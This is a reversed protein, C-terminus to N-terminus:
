LLELGASFGPWIRVETAAGENSLRASGYLAPDTLVNESDAISVSIAPGAFVAVGRTVRWGVPLRLQAISTWDYSDHVEDHALLGHEIADLDLFWDAQDALRVGIGLATAFVVGLGDRHTVGVGYINHVHKGGHKIGVMALGADGSWVDPQTRGHWLLSVLGIAADADEAVNLLGIMTGEVREAAVNVLGLQVGDVDEGAVNLLGIQAGSTKQIAIDVLGFQLGEFRAGALNFLGWQAGVLADTAVNALAVQAGRVQGDAIDVLGLQLGKVLVTGTNILGVQVGQVPGTVLNLGGSLQAGCLARTELNFVGGLEFGRVSGSFGGLLNFSVAREVEAGDLASTGLYPVFDAGLWRRKGSWPDCGTPLPLAAAVDPPRLQALLEAAEDRLLNTAVLAITEAAHARTSSVDIVRELTPRDDRSLAIRVLDASRADVTLRARSSDDVLLVAMGLEGAIATRLTEPDIETPQLRVWLRLPKRTSTPADTPADTPDDARAAAVVASCAFLAALWISTRAQMM